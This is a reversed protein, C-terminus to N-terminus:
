RQKRAVCSEAFINITINLTYLVRVVNLCTNKNPNLPLFLASKCHPELLPNISYLCSELFCLKVVTKRTLLFGILTFWGHIVTNNRNSITQAERTLDTGAAGQDRWWWTKFPTPSIIAAALSILSVSTHGGLREGSRKAQFPKKKRMSMELFIAM